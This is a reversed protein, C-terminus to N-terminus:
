FRYVKPDLLMSASMQPRETKEKEGFLGLSKGLLEIARLKGGYVQESVDAFAVRKLEQLVSDSTVDAKHLQEALLIEIATSIDVNTLLRSGSSRATKPSYGAAIAARTANKLHVYESIFVKQKPTLRNKRM